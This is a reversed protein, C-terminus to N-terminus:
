DASTLGVRIAYKTLEAISRVGLKEAIQRRHTEVTPMAIDLVSAIEKSSKGEALLQLVELERATLPRVSAFEPARRTSPPVRQSDASAGGRGRLDPSTFVQGDAVSRIAQILLDFGSSKSVYGMAGAEFIANAYRFDLNMSLGIVKLRPNNSLARRTADVGNLEPLCLDMLVIDFPTSETLQVAERGDGAETVIFGKEELLVRLCERFMRHDDVLLIKMM